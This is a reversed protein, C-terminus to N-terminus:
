SAEALLLEQISTAYSIQKDIMNNVMLEYQTEPEPKECKQSYRIFKNLLQYLIEVEEETFCSEVDIETLKM